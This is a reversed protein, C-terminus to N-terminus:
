IQVLQFSRTIPPARSKPSRPIINPQNQAHFQHHIFFIQNSVQAPIYILDNFSFQQPETVLTGTLIKESQNTEDTLLHISILLM